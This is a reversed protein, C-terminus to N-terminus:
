CQKVETILRSSTSEVHYTTKITTLLLAVVIWGRHHTGNQPPNLIFYYFKLAICLHEASRLGGIKM